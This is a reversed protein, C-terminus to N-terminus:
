FHRRRLQEHLNGEEKKGVQYNREMLTKLHAPIVGVASISIGSSSGKLVM